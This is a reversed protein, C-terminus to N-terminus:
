GIWDFACTHGVRTKGGTRGWRKGDWRIQDTGRWNPPNLGTFRKQRRCHMKVLPLTWCWFASMHHKANKKKMVKMVKGLEAMLTGHAQLRGATDCLLVDVGRAKAADLANYMVSAPDAGPESSIFDAGVREAWVQLNNLRM